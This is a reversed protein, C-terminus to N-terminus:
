LPVGAKEAVAAFARGLDDSVPIGDKSRQAAVEARKEGPYRAGAASGRYHEIWKRMHADFDARDAFEYPDIVMLFGGFAAPLGPVGELKSPDTGTFAGALCEVMMAIGVGKAGATPLLMGEFAKASDNTPNGDKDLAWGDPISKGDRKAEIIKGFAAESAAMDFVFPLRGVVPAAFSLPNNGIARHRSGPLGMLPPANQMLSAIMGKEALHRTFYGLAGLHGTNRITVFAFGSSKAREYAADVAVMGAVQGLSFDADFELSAKRETLKFQPQAKNRGRALLEVYAPIRSVGHTDIGRLSTDVLLDAVTQAHGASLGSAQFVAGTWAHLRQAQLMQM